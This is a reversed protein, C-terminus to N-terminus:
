RPGHGHGHGPKGPKKNDDKKSSANFGKLNYSSKKNDDKGPKGPKTPKGPRKLSSAEHKDNGKKKGGKKKDDKKFSSLKFIAPKDDKKPPGKHGRADAQPALVSTAALSAGIALAAIRKKMM